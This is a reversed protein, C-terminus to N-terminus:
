VVKSYRGAAVGRYADFQAAVVRAAMRHPSTVRVQEGRVAAIRTFHGSALAALEDAFYGEPLGHAVRVAALDVELFCMLADIVQKRAVDDGAFARGRVVPLEGAEVRAAYEPTRPSNQAYGGPFQSISSCGVGILVDSGDTVYGQFNRRLSGDALAQALSDTPKAFHDIGITTYGQAELFAAGKTFLELKTRVDPLWAVDIMRQHLKIQPVHAYSFLAIREPMLTMTKELSDMFRALNQHPLGYILDCNLNDFGAARLGKVVEVVQEYPQVRNIAAQVEPDFDQLGISIRNFGLAKYHAINEATTTRPDLEIAQEHIAVKPFAARIAGLIASLDEAVLMSPSGGGFHINKLVGRGALATKLLALEALLTKVYKAIPDYRKVMKTHCGCFWCLERCFPVHVYVSVGEGEGVATLWERQQAANVGENFHHATPYSTYRPAELGLWRLGENDIETVKQM